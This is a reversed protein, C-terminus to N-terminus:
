VACCRARHLDAEDAEALHAPVHDQAQGDARGVTSPRCPGCGDAAVGDDAVRVVGIGIEGADVADVDDVGEVLEDAFSVGGRTTHTITGAPLGVSVTM